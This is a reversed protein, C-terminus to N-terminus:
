VWFSIQSHNAIAMHLQMDNATHKPPIIFRRTGTFVAMTPSRTAGTAAIAWCDSAWVGGAAGGGSGDVRGVGAVPGAGAAVMLGTVTVPLRGLSSKRGGGTDIGRTPPSTRSMGCDIVMM